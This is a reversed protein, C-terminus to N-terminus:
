EWLVDAESKLKEIFMIDVEKKRGGVNVEAWVPQKSIHLLLNEAARNPNVATM